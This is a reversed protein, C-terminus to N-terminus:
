MEGWRKVRVNHVLTQKEPRKNEKLLLSLLKERQCLFRVALQPGQIEPSAQCLHCSWLTNRTAQPYSLQEWLWLPGWSSFPLTGVWVRGPSTATKPIRRCNNQAPEAGAQPSRSCCQGPKGARLPRHWARARPGPLWLVGWPPCPCLAGPAAAPPNGAQNKQSRTDRLLKRTPSYSKCEFSNEKRM